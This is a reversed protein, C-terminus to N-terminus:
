GRGHHTYRMVTESEHWGHRKCIRAMAPRRCHARVSWGNGEALDRAWQAVAEVGAGALMVIVLELGHPAQELRTVVFGPKETTNVRWLQATGEAVEQRTAALTDRDGAAPALIEWALATDPAPTIPELVGM